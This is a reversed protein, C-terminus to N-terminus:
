GTLQIPSNRIGYENSWHGSFSSLLSRLPSRVDTLAPAIGTASLAVAIGALVPPLDTRIAAPKTNRITRM